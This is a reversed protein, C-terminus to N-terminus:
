DRRLRISPASPSMPDPGDRGVAEDGRNSDMTVAKNPNSDMTVAKNPHAHAHGHGAIQLRRYDEMEGAETGWGVAHCANTLPRGTPLCPEKGGRASGATGGTEGTISNGAPRLGGPEV